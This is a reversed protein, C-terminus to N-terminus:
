KEGTNSPQIYACPMTTDPSSKGSNDILKTLHNIVNKEFLNRTIHAHAHVIIHHM